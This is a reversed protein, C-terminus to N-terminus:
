PAAVAKSINPVDSWITYDTELGAHFIGDKYWYVPFKAISKDVAFDPNFNFYFSKDTQNWCTDKNYTAPCSGLKNLPDLPMTIGLEKGLTAQWSPWKSVSAGAMYSGSKLGPPNIKKSLALNMQNLDALRKVDRIIKKKQDNNIEPNTNFKWHALIQSFIDVTQNEAAQNYSIIYINTYFNAGSINAANVYVTRGDRVAPYGDVSLSQPSGSFKQEKYWRSPSLHNLNPMVRIAIADRSAGFAALPFIGAIIIVGALILKKITM